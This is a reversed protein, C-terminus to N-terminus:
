HSDAASKERRAREIGAQFAKEKASPIVVDLIELEIPHAQGHHELAKSQHLWGEWASAIVNVAWMIAEVSPQYGQEGPAPRKGNKGARPYRADMLPALNLSLGFLTAGIGFEPYARDFEAALADAQASAHSLFSDSDSPGSDAIIKVAKRRFLESSSNSVLSGYVRLEKGYGIPNCLFHVLYAIHHPSVSELPGLKTEVLNRCRTAISKLEELRKLDPQDIRVALPSLRGEDTLAMLEAGIEDLGLGLLVQRVEAWETISGLRSRVLSPLQAVVELGVSLRAEDGSVHFTCYYQRLVRVSVCHELHTRLREYVGRLDGTTYVLMKVWEPENGVSAMFLQLAFLRM